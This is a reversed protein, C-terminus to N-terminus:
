PAVPAGRRKPGPMAFPGATARSVVGRSVVGERTDNVFLSPGTHGAARTAPRGTADREHADRTQTMGSTAIGPETLTAVAGIGAM